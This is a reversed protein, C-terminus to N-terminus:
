HELYDCLREFEEAEEPTLKSWDYELEDEDYAKAKLEKVRAQALEKKTPIREEVLENPTIDREMPLKILPKSVYKARLGVGKYSKGLTLVCRGMEDIIPGVYIDGQNEKAVKRAAHPNDCLAIMKGASVVLYGRPKAM